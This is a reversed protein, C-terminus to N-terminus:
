DARLPTPHGFLWGQGYHIGLEGLMELEELTDIEALTALGPLLPSIGRDNLIDINMYSLYYDSIKQEISGAAPEISTLDDIITRVRQDSRDGLANFSGYTSRDAPLEFTDMWLGNAYQFFDDGPRVSPDQNSLDIGFSGLEPEDNTTVGSATESLVAAETSVVETEDSGCAVLLTSLSILFFKLSSSM